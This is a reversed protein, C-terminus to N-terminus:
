QFLVRVKHTLCVPFRHRPMFIQRATAVWELICFDEFDEGSLIEIGMQEAKELKTGADDGVIVLNTSKTISSSVTNGLSEVIGKAKARSLTPLVGTFVINKDRLLSHARKRGSMLVFTEPQSIVHRFEVLDQDSLELSEAYISDGDQCDFDQDDM